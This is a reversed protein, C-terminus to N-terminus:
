TQQKKVLLLRCVVNCPAQIEATHEESRKARVARGPGGADGAGVGGGGRWLPAPPRPRRRAPVAGRCIPLADHLPLSYIETTATDSLFFFTLINCTNM